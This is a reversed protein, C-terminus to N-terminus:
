ELLESLRTLRNLLAPADRGTGLLLTSRGAATAGLYDNDIDNGVFLAHEPRHSRPM